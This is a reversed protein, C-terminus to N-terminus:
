WIVVGEELLGTGGLGHGLSKARHKKTMEKNEKENLRMSGIRTGLFIYKFHKLHKLIVFLYLAM